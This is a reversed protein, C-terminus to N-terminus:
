LDECGREEDGMHQNMRRQVPERPDPGDFDDNARRQWGRLLARNFGFRGTQATQQLSPQM